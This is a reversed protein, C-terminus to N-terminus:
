RIRRVHSTSRSVPLVPYEDYPGREAVEKFTFLMRKRAM